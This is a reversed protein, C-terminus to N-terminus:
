LVYVNLEYTGTPQRYITVHGWKKTPKGKYTALEAHAEVTHGYPVGSFTIRDFFAYDLVIAAREMLQTKAAEM